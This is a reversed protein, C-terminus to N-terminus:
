QFKCSLPRKSLIFDNELCAFSFGNVCPAVASSVNVYVLTSGDSM